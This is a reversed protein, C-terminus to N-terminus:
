DGSERGPSRNTLCPRGCCTM